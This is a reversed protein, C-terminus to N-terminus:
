PLSKFSAALEDYVGIPGVIVYERHGNTTFAVMEYQVGTPSTFEGTRAAHGQFKTVSQSVLTTGSTAAFGGLTSRLTADVASDPLAPEIDVEEVAEVDPARVTALHLTFHVGGIYSPVQTEEPTSQFKASFHGAKYTTM